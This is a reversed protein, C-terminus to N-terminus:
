APVKEVHVEVYTLIKNDKKNRFVYHLVAMVEYVGIDPDVNLEMREGKRPVSDSYYEFLDKDNERLSIEIM